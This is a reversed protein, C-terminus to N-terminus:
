KYRERFGYNVFRFTDGARDKFYIWGFQDKILIDGSRFFMDGDKLVNKMIKKNTSSNDSYGHFDRVPHGKDIRGVLEGPEGDQCVIALGDPGRLPEGSFLFQDDFSLVQILVGGLICIKLNTTSKYQDFPAFTFRYVQSIYNLM